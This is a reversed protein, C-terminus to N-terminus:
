IRVQTLESLIPRLGRMIVMLEASAAEAEPWNQSRAMMELRLSADYAHPSCFNAVAGKLSHAAAELSKCDHDNLATAILEILRVSDELFLGALEQLLKQDEEDQYRRQLASTDILSEVGDAKLCRELEVKM